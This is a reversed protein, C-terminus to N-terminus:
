RNEGCVEGGYAGLVRERVSVCEVNKRRRM